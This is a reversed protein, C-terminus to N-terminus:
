QTHKHNYRLVEKINKPPMIMLTTERVRRNTARGVLMMGILLQLGLVKTSRSKLAVSLSTIAKIDDHTHDEDTTLDGITINHCLARFLQFLAPANQKIEASITDLSFENFHTITNPGHYVAMNNHLLQDAQTTVVLSSTVHVRQELERVRHELTRVTEELERIRHRLQQKEEDEEMTPTAPKERVEEIGFIHMTRDSSYIKKEATPFEEQLIRSVIKHEYKRCFNSEMANKISSVKMPKACPALHYKTHLWERELEFEM